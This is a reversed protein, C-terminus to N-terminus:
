PGATGQDSLIRGKTVVQYSPPLWRRLLSAWNEEGQDGATGPDETARNQIQDYESAMQLTADRMFAFLEHNKALM